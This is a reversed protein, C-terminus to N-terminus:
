SSGCNPGTKGPPCLCVCVLFRNRSKFIRPGTGSGCTVPYPIGGYSCPFYTIVDKSGRKELVEDEIPSEGAVLLPTLLLAWAGLVILATTLNPKGMIQTRYNVTARLLDPVQNIISHQEVITVPKLNPHRLA